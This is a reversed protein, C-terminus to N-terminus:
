ANEEEMVFYGGCGDSDPHAATHTHWAVVCGSPGDWALVDLPPVSHDGYLRQLGDRVLSEAEDLNGVEGILAQALGPADQSAVADADAGRDYHYLRYM